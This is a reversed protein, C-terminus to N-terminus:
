RLATNSEAVLASLCGECLDLDLECPEDRTFRLTREHVGGTQGCHICNRYQGPSISATELHGGTDDRHDVM